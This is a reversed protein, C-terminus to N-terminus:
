AKRLASPLNMSIRMSSLVASSLAFFAGILLAYHTENASISMFLLAVIAAGTIQGTLRAMALMGSASGSRSQPASGILISNNPSQFMGFGAGCMMMRWVVGWVGADTPMFALLLLGVSMLFLGCAGLLGAHVHEVMFGAIPAVIMIIAPWSTMLLGTQVASYGLQHQLFFPLSVLASMQAIFSGISTCVSIRFIPIRLLDVPFLPLSKHSQTHLFMYGVLIAVVILPLIVWWSWRLTFGEFSLVFLIIVVANIGFDTLNLHLDMNRVPNDPLFPIGFLLALLAFPVSVVFLWPWDAVSLIGSAITPGAVAAIAVVTANIGMGRGLNHKPYIIRILSTNVSVLASGAIGQIVRAMILFSFSVSLACMTSSLAFAILGGIYIRRYGVM